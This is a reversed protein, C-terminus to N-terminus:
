AVECEFAAAMIKQIRDTGYEACLANYVAATHLVDAATARTLLGLRVFEAMREAEAVFAYFKANAITMCVSTQLTTWETPDLALVQEVIDAELNLTM